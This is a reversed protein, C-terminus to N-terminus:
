VVFGLVTMVVIFLLIFTGGLKIGRARATGDDTTDLFPILLWFLGGILFALIGLLEGDIFLVTGPIYKLAQFMFLFYWEPKIGAPASSFLDAKQGLEWPFLVALVALINFVILWLLLDRLVFNPFFPIHVKKEEPVTEWGRPESMGQVQIFILHTTLVLTFILPLMAVHIGYFRPLTAGTVEESGRLLTMMAKGVIPIVGIIDTGVKTAFYSLENWPLLYGSFGFGMVLLLLIVGSIWTMERPKRYARLFFVSFMHIFVALVMLNGAWSHVSRVLWGFKVQSMIFRISEYASDASAKYYFLLLIGSIVQVVFLFLAVGGFYYWFWGKGHPVKKKKLFDILLGTEFRQDIWDRLRKWM